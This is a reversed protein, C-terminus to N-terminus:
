ISWYLKWASWTSGNRFRMEGANEVPYLFTCYATDWLGTRTVLGSKYFASGGLCYTGDQIVFGCPNSTWEVQTYGNGADSVRWNWHSTCAAAQVTGTITLGPGSANTSGPGSVSLVTVKANSASGLPHTTTATASASSLLAVFMALAFAVSISLLRSRLV